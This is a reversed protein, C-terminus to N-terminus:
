LDVIEVPPLKFGAIFDLTVGDADFLRLSSRDDNLTGTTVQTIWPNPGNLRCESLRESVEIQSFEITREDTLEWRGTLDWCGMDGRLEHSKRFDLHLHDHSDSNDTQSYWDKEILDKQVERHASCGTLILAVLVTLTLTLKKM